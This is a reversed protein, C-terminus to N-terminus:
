SEADTLSDVHRACKQDAEAYPSARATFRLFLIVVQTSM